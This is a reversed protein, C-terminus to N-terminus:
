SADKEREREREREPINPRYKNLPLAKPFLFSLSRVNAEGDFSLLQVPFISKQQKVKEEQRESEKVKKKKRFEERKAGERMLDNKM